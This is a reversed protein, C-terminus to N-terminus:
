SVKKILYAILEDEKEFGEWEAKAYRKSGAFKKLEQLNMDQIQSYLEEKKNSTEKEGPVRGEINSLLRSWKSVLATNEELKMEKKVATLDGGLFKSGDYFDTGRRSIIGHLSLKLIFLDEKSGKDGTSLVAKPDEKCLKLIADKVLVVNKEKPDYMFGAVKYSLLLATDFLGEDTLNERVYKEAEYAEASEKVRVEAEAIPDNLYFYDKKPKFSKRDKAIFWTFNRVLNYMAADKPNVFEGKENKTLDYKDRHKLNIRGDPKIIFPFKKSKEPSLPAQGRMEELTLNGATDPDRPDIHQGTLFTNISEDFICRFPYPTDKYRNDEAILEVIRKM